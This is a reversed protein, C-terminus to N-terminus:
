RANAKRTRSLYFRRNAATVCIRCIRRGHRAELPHGRKCTPQTGPAYVPRGTRLKVWRITSKSLKFHDAIDKGTRGADIWACIEAQQAATLNRRRYGGRSQKKAAVVCAMCTRDLGDYSKRNPRYTSRLRLEKCTYCIKQTIPDGGADLIRQRAHLLRHYAADECIVLNTPDNNSPNGDVHHVPHRRELYRGLAREAILVHEMVFGGSDARPHGKAMVHVYGQHVFRGSGRNHTVGM